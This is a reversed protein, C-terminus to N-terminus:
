VVFWLLWIDPVLMKGRNLGSPPPPPPPYEPNWTVPIILPNEQTEFKRNQSKKPYSFKPLYKKPCSSKLLSKKPYEFSINRNKHSIMELKRSVKIALFTPMSINKPTLNQNLFIKPNQNKGGNSWGQWKFDLTGVQSDLAGGGGGRPRKIELM